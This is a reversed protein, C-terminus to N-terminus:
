AHPTTGFRARRRKPRKSNIQPFHWSMRLPESAKRASPSPVTKAPTGSEVAPADRLNQATERSISPARADSAATREATAKETDRRIAAGAYEIRVTGRWTDSRNADEVSLLVNRPASPNITVTSKATTASRQQGPQRAPGVERTTATTQLPANTHKM